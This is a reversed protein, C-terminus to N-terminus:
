HWLLEVTMSRHSPWQAKVYINVTSYFRINLKEVKISYHPISFLMEQMSYSIIVLKGTLLWWFM